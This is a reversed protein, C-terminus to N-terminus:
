QPAFLLTIVCGKGACLNGGGNVNVSKIKVGSGQDFAREDANTTKKWQDFPLNHNTLRLGKNASISSITVSGKGYVMQIKWPKTADVGCMANACKSTGAEAIQVGTLIGAANNHHVEGKTLTWNAGADLGDPRLIISGGDQVVIKTDGPAADMRSSSGSLLLMAIALVTALTLRIM